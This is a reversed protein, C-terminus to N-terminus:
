EICIQELKIYGASVASDIIGRTYEDNKQKLCNENEDIFLINGRKPIIITKVDSLKM